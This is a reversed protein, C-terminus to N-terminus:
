FGDNEPQLNGQLTRSPLSGAYVTVDSRDRGLTGLRALMTKGTGTCGGVLRAWSVDLRRYTRDGFKKRHNGERCQCNFFKFPKWPM